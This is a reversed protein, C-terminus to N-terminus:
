KIKRGVENKGITFDDWHNYSSIRTWNSFARRVARGQESDRWQGKTVYTKTDIVCDPLDKRLEEWSYDALTVSKAYLLRLKKCNALAKINRVKGTNNIMLRELEACNGLPSLDDVDACNYVELVRLNKLNGLPEITDIKNEAIILVELKTLKGILSIDTMHNHGLDLARLDTCYALLPYLEKEDFSKIQTAGILTSFVKIDTRAQWRAFEVLWVISTDPFAKNLRDVDEDPVNVDGLYIERVNPFFRLANYFESLDTIKQGSFDFSVSDSDIRSGYLTGSFLCVCGSDDKLLPGAAEFLEDCLPYGSADLTTLRTFYRINGLDSRSVDQTLTLEPIDSAYHGGGLPVSWRIRCGPLAAHISDFQKATIRTDTLDASRLETLKMLKESEGSLDKGSLDIESVTLNYETGCIVVTTLSKKIYLETLILASIAALSLCAIIIVKVYNCKSNKM